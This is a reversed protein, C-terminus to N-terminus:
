KRRGEVKESLYNYATSLNIKEYYATFYLWVVLGTVIIVTFDFVKGITEQSIRITCGEPPPLRKTALLWVVVFAGVFSIRITCRGYCCSGRPLLGEFRRELSPMRSRWRSPLLHARCPDSSGAISSAQYKTATHARDAVLHPRLSGIKRQAWPLMRVAGGQRMYAVDDRRVNARTADEGAGVGPAVHAKVLEVGEVTFPYVCSLRAVRESGRFAFCPTLQENPPFARCGKSIHVRAKTDRGV